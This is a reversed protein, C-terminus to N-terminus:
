LSFLWNANFFIILINNILIYLKLQSYVNSSDPISLSDCEFSCLLFHIVAYGGMFNILQKAVVFNSFLFFLVLLWRWILFIVGYM